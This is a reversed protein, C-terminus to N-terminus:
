KNTYTHIKDWIKRSIEELVLWGNIRAIFLLKGDSNQIPVRKLRALDISSGGTNTNIPQGAFILVGTKFYKRVLDVALKTSKGRPYCFHKVRINLKQELTAKSKTLEMVIDNEEHQDLDLHHVTHAGFYVGDYTNLEKIQDWTMLQNEGIDSDWWFFEKSDIYGTVLYNISPFQYHHLIPIANEYFDAYGDDFTLVISKEFLIKNELRHVLEDMSIVAYKKKKLYNMQWQFNETSVAMEKHVSDNVRHYMLIVAQNSNKVITRYLLGIPM